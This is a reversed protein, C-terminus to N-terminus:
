KVIGELLREESFPLLWFIYKRVKAKYVGDTEQIDGNLDKYTKDGETMESIKTIKTTVIKYDFLWGTYKEDIILEVKEYFAEEAINKPSYSDLWLSKVCLIVLLILMAILFIKERKIM